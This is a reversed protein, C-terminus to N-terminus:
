RLGPRRRICVTHHLGGSTAELATYTHLLHRHIRYGYDIRTTMGKAAFAEASVDSRAKVLMSKRDETGSASRALPLPLPLDATRTYAQLYTSSTTVQTSTECDRARFRPSV